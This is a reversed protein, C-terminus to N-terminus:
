KLGMIGKHKEVAADLAQKIGMEGRIAEKLYVNYVTKYIEVDFETYPAIFGPTYSIGELITPIYPNAQALRPDSYCAKLPPGSTSVDPDVPFGGRLMNLDYDFIMMELFKWGWYANGKAPIGYVMSFESCATELPPNAPLKTWAFKGIVQSERADNYYPYTWTADAHGAVLGMRFASAETGTSAINMTDPDLCGTDYLDKMWQLAAQGAENNYVPYGKDDYIDGNHARVIYWWDPALNDDNWDDIAGWMTVKGGSKKTTKKVVDLVEPMTRPPSVGAEKYVDTRYVWLAVPGIFAPLGFTTGGVQSIAKYTPGGAIEDWSHGGAALYPDL